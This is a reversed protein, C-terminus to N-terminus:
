RRTRPRPRPRQVASSRRTDQTRTCDAVLDGVSAARRGREVGGLQGAARAGNPELRISGRSPRRRRRGHEGPLARVEERPQIHTPRASSRSAPPCAARSDRRAVVAHQQGAVLVAHQAGELVGAPVAAVLQQRAAARGLLRPSRRGRGRRTRGARRCGARRGPSGAVDLAEVRGLEPQTSSGTARTARSPRRRGTAARGTVEGLVDALELVITAGYSAPSAARRQAVCSYSTAALQFTM